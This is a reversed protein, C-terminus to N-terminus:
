VRFDEVSAGSVLAAKLWRPTKGRGSWTESPDNPNRYKPLVIPYHKRDTMEPSSVVRRGRLEILRKELSAKEAQLRMDLTEIVQLHLAWLEDTRMQEFKMQKM